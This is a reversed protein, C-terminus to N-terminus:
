ALACNACRPAASWCICVRPRATGPKDSIKGEAIYVDGVADRGGDTGADGRGKVGEEVVGGVGRRHGDALM